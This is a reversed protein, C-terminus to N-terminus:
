TSRFTASGPLGYLSYLKRLHGEATFQEAVKRRANEGLQRRLGPDSALTMMKESMASVDLPPYLMGDVGDDVIEPLGGSAPVLVPRKMWMAEICVIGFPEFPAAHCFVDSMAMVQDIDTRTGLFRVDNSVGLERALSELESKQPGDGCVLLTVDAGRSRAQAISRICVDVRKNVGRGLTGVACFLTATPRSAYDRRDLSTAEFNGFSVPDICNHVVQIRNAPIGHTRIMWLKLAHSCTVISDATWQSAFNAVRWKMSNMYIDGQEYGFRLPVGALLAAPLGFVRSWTLWAEVLDPQISRIRARLESVLRAYHRSTAQSRLDLVDVEIGLARIRESLPGDGFLCLVRHRFPYLRKAAALQTLLQIQAGGVKLEDILHLLLPKEKALKSIAM